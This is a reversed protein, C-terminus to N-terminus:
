LCKRHTYNFDIRVFVSTIWKWTFGHFHTNCVPWISHQHHYFVLFQLIWGFWKFWVLFSHFICLFILHNVLDTFSMRLCYIFFVFCHRCECQNWEVWHGTAPASCHTGNLHMCKNTQTYQITDKVCMLVCNVNRQWVCCDVVFYVGLLLLLVASDVVFLFFIQAEYEHVSPNIPTKLGSNISTHLEFFRASFLWSDFFDFPLVLLLFATPSFFFLCSNFENHLKKNNNALIVHLFPSASVFDVLLLVLFFIM